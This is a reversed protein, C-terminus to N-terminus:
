STIADLELSSNPFQSFSPFSNDSGSWCGNERHVSGGKGMRLSLSKPLVMERQSWLKEYHLNM